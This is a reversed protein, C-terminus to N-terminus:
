LGELVTKRANGDKGTVSTLGAAFVRVFQALRTRAAVESREDAILGPLCKIIMDAANSSDVVRIGASEIIRTLLKLFQTETTTVIKGCLANKADILEHGHESMHLAEFAWGIRAAIVAHLRSELDGEHAAADIVARRVGQNVRQSLARFVDERSQYHRYLITRSLGAEAAVDTMSTRQFGSRAFCRLAANLIRAEAGTEELGALTWTKTTSM